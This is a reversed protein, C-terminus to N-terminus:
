HSGRTSAEARRIRALADHAVDKGLRVDAWAARLKNAARDLARLYHGSEQLEGAEFHIVADLATRLEAETLRITVYRTASM